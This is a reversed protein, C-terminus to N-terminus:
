EAFVKQIGKKLDTGCLKRRNFEPNMQLWLKDFEKNLRDIEGNAWNKWSDILEKSAGVSITLDKLAKLDQKIQKAKSFDENTM